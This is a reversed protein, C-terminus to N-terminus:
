SQDNGYIAGKLRIRIEGSMSDRDKIFSMEELQVADDDTIVGVDLEMDLVFQRLSSQIFTILRDELIM